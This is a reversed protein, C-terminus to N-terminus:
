GIICGEKNIIIQNYGVIKEQLLQCSNVPQGNISVNLLYTSETNFNAHHSFMDIYMAKLGKANSYFYECDISEVPYKSPCNGTQVRWEIDITDTEVLDGRHLNFSGALATPVTLVLSLGLIFGHKNM